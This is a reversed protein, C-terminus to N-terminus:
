GIIQLALLHVGPHLQQCRLVRCLTRIAETEQWLIERGVELASGVYVCSLGAHSEDFTLAVLGRETGASDRTLFHLTPNIPDRYRLHRRRDDGRM